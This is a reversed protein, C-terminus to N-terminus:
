CKVATKHPCFYSYSEFCGEQHTPKAWIKQTLFSNEVRVPLVFITINHIVSQEWHSRAIFDSWNTWHLWYWTYGYLDDVVVVAKGCFDETHHSSMHKTITTHFLFLKFQYLPMYFCKRQIGNNSFKNIWIYVIYFCLIYCINRCVARNYKGLQINM